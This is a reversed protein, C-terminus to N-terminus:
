EFLAQGVSMAQRKLYFSKVLADGILQFSHCNKTERLLGHLILPMIMLLFAFADTTKWM